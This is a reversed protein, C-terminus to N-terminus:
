ELKRRGIYRASDRTYLCPVCSFRWVVNLRLFLNQLFFFFIIVLTCITLVLVTKINLHASPQKENTQKCM